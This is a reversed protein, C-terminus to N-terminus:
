AQKKFLEKIIEKDIAKTFYLIALYVLCAVLATLIISIEKLPWAIILTLLGAVLSKILVNYNLKIPIHKRVVLFAFVVILSEVLLTMGAAGWYSFRPIFIFYGVLAIIAAILFYKIMQKQAQLAVVLYTFLTGFFIVATAVILLNLIPGSAVFGQGALLVMLPRSVLWIGIMMGVTLMSFFDFTYQCINKLKEFNQSLLAATFLPLILSMFMHPFTALVELAKYPAGYLGVTEPSYYASLILTDAKFYVLNLVVTVALPWTYHFIHRWYKFDWALGLKVYKRLFGYLVLFGLAVVVSQTFLLTDLNSGIKFLYVIVGFHVIKNFLDVIAIKSMDLKKSFVATLTSILSQFFFVFMLYTVGSKVAQDYPFFKIVLPILVLILLSSLVRITFINNVVKTEEERSQAASVERLLALYLGLDAMIMFMQVFAFITVYFGFNVPGLMRTVFALGVVGILVTLLRAIVQWLTNTFIKHATSM